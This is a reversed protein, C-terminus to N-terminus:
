KRFSELVEHGEKSLMNENPNVLQLDLLFKYLNNLRTSVFGPSSKNIWILFNHQIVFRHTTNNNQMREFGVQQHDKIIKNCLFRFFDTVSREHYKAFILKINVIGGRKFDLSNAILYDKLEDFNQLILNYCILILKLSLCLVLPYNSRKDQLHLENYLDETFVQSYKDIYAKVSLKYDKESTNFLDILHNVFDEKNYCEQNIYFLMSSFIHELGRHLLSQVYYLYWGVSPHNKGFQINDIHRAYYSAIFFEKNIYKFEDNTNLIRLYDLFSIGRYTIASQEQGIFLRIYARWEKSKSIINSFSYDDLKKIDLINFGDSMIISLFLERQEESISHNYSEAIRKGEDLLELYGYAHRKICKLIQLSNVYFQFNDGTGKRYKQRSAFSFFGEEGLNSKCYDYYDRGPINAFGRHLENMIFLTIIEGRKIFKHQDRSIVEQTTKNKFYQDILYCYLGYYRIRPTQTTIGPLLKDIIIQSSGNIGLPDLGRSKFGTGIAWYHPTISNLSFYPM